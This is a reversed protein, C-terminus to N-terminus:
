LGTTQHLVVMCFAETEQELYTALFDQPFQAKTAVPIESVWDQVAGVYHRSLLRVSDPM